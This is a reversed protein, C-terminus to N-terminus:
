LWFKAVCDILGFVFKWGLLLCLFCLRIIRSFVSLFFSIRPLNVVMMVFVKCLLFLIFCMWMLFVKLYFVFVGFLEKFVIWVEYFTWCASAANCNYHTFGFIGFFCLGKEFVCVRMRDDRVVFCEFVGLFGADRFSFIVCYM